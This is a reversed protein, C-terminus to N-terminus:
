ELDINFDNTVTGEPVYFVTYDKFWNFFNTAFWLYGQKHKYSYKKVVPEGDKIEEIYAKSTSITKIQKGKDTMIIYRYVLKEDSYGSALFVAGNTESSDKLAYIKTEDVMIENPLFNGIISGIIFWTLSGLISGIIVGVFGDAFSHYDKYYWIFFVIALIIVYAM